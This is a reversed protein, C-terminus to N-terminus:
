TKLEEPHNVEQWCRREREKLVVVVEGKQGHSTFVGTNQCTIVVFAHPLICLLVSTSLSETFLTDANNLGVCRSFCRRAAFCRTSVNINFGQGITQLHHPSFSSYYYVYATSFYLDHRFAHWLMGYDLPFIGLHVPLTRHPVVFLTPNEQWHVREM